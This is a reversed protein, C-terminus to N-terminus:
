AARRQSPESPVKRVPQHKSLCFRAHATCYTPVARGADTPVPQGCCMQNAPRDPTGVPFSCQFTRRDILPIADDNAPCEMAAAVADGEAKFSARKRETEAANEVSVAGFIADPRNQPGPKPPSTVVRAVSPARAPKSPACRAVKMWGRRTAVGIIANRSTAGVIRATEAASRGEDIYLRKAQAERKPTWFVPERPMLGLRVRTKTLTKHGIQFHDEMRDVSEGARWLKAFEQEKEPTWQCTM